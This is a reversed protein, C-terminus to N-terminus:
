DFLVNSIMHEYTYPIILTNLLLVIWFFHVIMLYLAGPEVYINLKSKSLDISQTLIYIAHYCLYTQLIALVAFCATFIQLSPNNTSQQILTSQIKKSEPFQMANSM